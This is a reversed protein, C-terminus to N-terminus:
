EVQDEGILGRGAKIVKGQTKLDKLIKDLIGNIFTRSKSTSYFRALDIYENLTVKTPVSPFNLFETIALQMILLDIFAIRDLDWNKLHTEIVAQHEKYDLVSKRFLKKTFDLDDEEKFLPLLAKNPSTNAKFKRITKLIMSIVFELDDNWYISQEELIQSLDESTAFIDTYIFDVLETDEKESRNENAMYRKFEDTECLESYLKKILEPNNIWSLKGTQIYKELNTNEAIKAIVVNEVFKNNPNLDDVSPRHKTLNQEIRTVAFDKIDVLLQLMLHYLDYTKQISFFLEKEALNISKEDSCHLSYLTQMVKIRIVRRSIM